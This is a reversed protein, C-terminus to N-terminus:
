VVRGVNEILGSYCFREPLRAVIYGNNRKFDVHYISLYNNLTRRYSMSTNSRGDVMRLLQHHENWVFLGKYERNLVIMNYRHLEQYILRKIDNCLGVWM